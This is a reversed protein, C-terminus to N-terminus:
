IASPTLTYHRGRDIQVDGIGCRVLNIGNATLVITKHPDILGSEAAMNLTTITRARLDQSADVTGGAYLTATTIVDTGTARWYMSADGLTLTTIAGEYHTWAGGTVDVTGLASKSVLEGGSMDLDPATTGDSETVADGVVVAGGTINISAFEAAEGANAGVGVSDNDDAGMIDLTPNNTASISTLNLGYQGTGPVAPAKTVRVAKAETLKIYSATEGGWDMTAVGTATLTLELDTSASGLAATCGDEIVLAAINTTVTGGDIAVTADAPVVATDGNGPATDGVWNAATFFAADTGGGDWVITAM